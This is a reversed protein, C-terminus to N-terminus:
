IYKKYQSPTIFQLKMKRAYAALRRGILDNLEDPQLSLHSFKLFSTYFNPGAATFGDFGALYVEKVDCGMLIKMCMLLSIDKVPASMDILKAYNFTYDFNTGLPAINSTAAIPLKKRKLTDFLQNYRKANAIFAIDIPYGSLACNVSIVFLDQQEIIANVENLHTKITAGPGLLLVKKGALSERLKEYSESDNIQKDQYKLYIEEILNENYSLKNSTPIENLIDMESQASLTQKRELYSIYNHHVKAKGAIYHEYCYGWPTKNYIPLIYSDIIELVESINYAKDEHDNLYMCLLETCTNGASKGMGYCSSDLILERKSSTKILEICNAYAMQFNNHSHFGIAIHERLNNNLLEYYHLVRSQHMLGYTDVISVAYPNLENVKDILDLMERDTYTTVSVPQAFVIYGKEKLAQAYQMAADIESKKFTIRIGDLVTDSANSINELACNGFDTIAVVMSQHKKDGLLENICDTHWFRTHNADFKQKDYLYGVEIIDVHASNLRTFINRIVKRGFNFDNVFGGDRLTCDLVQIQRNM